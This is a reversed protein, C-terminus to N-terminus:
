GVVVGGLSVFRGHRYGQVALRALQVPFKYRHCRQLLTALHVLEFCKYLGWLITCSSQKSAVAREARLTQRWVVDVASSFQPGAFYSRQFRSGWQTAYPRRCRGWLRHSGGSPKNILSLVVLSTQGPFLGSAEMVSYLPAWSVWPGM